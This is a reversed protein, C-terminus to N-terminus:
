DAAAIAVAISRLKNIITDARSSMVVPVQAGAMMGAIGCGGLYRLAKLMVNGTEINPVLVMDANGAVGSLCKVNKERVAEPFLANDLQFPGDVLCNKFQGRQSMMALTAAEVTPPMTPNVLELAAIAAVKPTAIGMNSMINVCNNIIDVKQELTPYPVMGGDSLFLLRDLAPSDIVSVISLTKSQRIGTEKNLIARMLINSVLVGKMLVKAEGNRVLEVATEAAAKQDPRDILTFDGLDLEKERIISNIKAGDGVLIPEVIGLQVADRVATLVEEGEAAAVVMRKPSPTNQEKLYQDLKM